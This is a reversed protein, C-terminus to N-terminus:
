DKFYIDRTYVKDKINTLENEWRNALVIDAKKCFEEFNNIVECNNFKNVKLIPEFIIIKINEEQM